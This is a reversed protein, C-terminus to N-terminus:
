LGKPYPQYNKYFVLVDEVNKFPMKNANMFGTSYSKEM